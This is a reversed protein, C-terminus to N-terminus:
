ETRILVKKRFLELENLMQLMEEKTESLIAVDDVLLLSPIKENGYQVGYNKSMLLENLTDMMKAFETVSLVGGQRLSSTIIFKESIGFNTSKCQSTLDENLKKIIRWLKGTVNKEWLIYMILEKWTKDYAKEVDIFTIYLRKKNIKAENILSKLIFLQDVTSRQKRGGAQGESFELIKVLRNNLVREFLKEVNSSLTIGRRNQMLERDGKGKYLTIIELNKWEDPINEDAYIENFIRCLIQEMSRGGQIFIENPLQDPGCAKNQKLQKIAHNIEEIQIERNEELHDYQFQKQYSNVTDFVHKVWSQM